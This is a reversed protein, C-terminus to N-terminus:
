DYTDQTLIIKNTVTQILDIQRCYICNLYRQIAERELAYTGDSNTTVRFYMIIGSMQEVMGKLRARGVVAIRGDELTICAKVHLRDMNHVTQPLNLAYYMESPNEHGENTWNCTELDLCASKISLQADVM